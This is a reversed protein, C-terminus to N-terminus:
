NPQGPTYSASSHILLTNSDPDLPKVVTRGQNQLPNIRIGALPFALTSLGSVELRRFDGAAVQLLLQIVTDVLFRGFQFPLSKALEELALVQRAQAGSGLFPVDAHQTHKLPDDFGFLQSIHGLSGDTQEDLAQSFLFSGAITDPQCGHGDLVIQYGELRRQTPSDLL